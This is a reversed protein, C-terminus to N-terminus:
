IDHRLFEDGASEPLSKALRVGKDTLTRGLKGAPATVLGRSQLGQLYDGVSQDGLVVKDTLQGVTQQVPYQEFLVRLLAAEQQSVPEGPPDGVPSQGALKAAISSALQEHNVVTVPYAEPPPM